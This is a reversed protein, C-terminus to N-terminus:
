QSKARSLLVSLRNTMAEETTQGGFLLERGNTESAETALLKGSTILESIYGSLMVFFLDEYPLGVNRSISISAEHIDEPINLKLRMSM